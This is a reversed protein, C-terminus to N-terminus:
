NDSIEEVTNHGNQRQIAPFVIEFVTHYIEDLSIVSIRGGHNDVIRKVIALGLGTGNGSTRAKNSTVFIDFVSDRIDEPIGPGSDGMRFRIMGDDTSSVSFYLLSDPAYKYTNGLLNFFIKRFEGKDFYAMVPELPIDSVGLECGNFETEEMEQIILRRIYDAFDAREVTLHYSSNDLRTYDYLDTIIENMKLVEYHITDLFSKRIVESRDTGDTLMESRFVINQMPMKLDHVIYSIIDARLQEGKRFSKMFSSIRDTIVNAEKLRGHEVNFDGGRSFSEFGADVLNFYRSFVKSFNFSMLLIIGFILSFYTVRYSIMSILRPSPKLFSGRRGIHYIVYYLSKDKAIIRHVEYFLDNVAVDLNSSYRVLKELDEESLEHWYFNPINHAMVKGNEAVCLTSKYKYKNSGEEDTSVFDYGYFTYGHFPIGRFVYDARVKDISVLHSMIDLLVSSYDANSETLSPETSYIVDGKFDAIEVYGYPGVLQSFVNNLSSFDGNSDYIMSTVKSPTPLEEYSPRSAEILKESFIYIAIILVFLFLMHITFYVRLSVPINKLISFIRSLKKRM